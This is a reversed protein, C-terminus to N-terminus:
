TAEVTDSKLKSYEAISRRIDSMRFRVTRGIRVHPILGEQAWRYVTRNSSATFRAVEVVGVLPEQSHTSQWLAVEFVLKARKGRHGTETWQKIRMPFGHKIAIHELWETLADLGISDGQLLPWRHSSDDGGVVAWTSRQEHAVSAAESLENPININPLPM